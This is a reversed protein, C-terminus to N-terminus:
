SQRKGVVVLESGEAVLPLELMYRRFQPAITSKRFVVNYGKMLALTAQEDFSFPHEDERTGRSAQPFIEVTLVLYGDQRLVRTMEAIAQEPSTVHDLANSCTVVDFTADDFPLSEVPSTICEIGDWNSVLKCYYKLLPDVGVKRKATVVRLVSSIGCGVDLVSRHKLSVLREIEALFRYKEWYTRLAKEMDDVGLNAQRMGGVFLEKWFALEAVYKQPLFPGLSAVAIRQRLRLQSDRLNRRVAAPVVQKVLKRLM